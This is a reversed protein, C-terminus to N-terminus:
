ASANTSRIRIRIRIRISHFPCRNRSLIFSVSHDRAKNISRLSQPATKHKGLRHTPTDTALFTFHSISVHFRSFLFTFCWEEQSQIIITTTTFPAATITCPLFTQDDFAQFHFFPRISVFSSLSLSPCIYTLLVRARFEFAGISFLSHSCIIVTSVLLSCFSFSLNILSFPANTINSDHLWLLHPFFFSRSLFFGDALRRESPDLRVNQKLGHQVNSQEM